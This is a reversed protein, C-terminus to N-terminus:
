CGDGGGSVPGGLTGWSNNGLHAQVLVPERSEARCVQNLKVLSRGVLRRGTVSLSKAARLPTTDFAELRLAQSDPEQPM